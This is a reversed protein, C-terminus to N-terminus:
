KERQGHNDHRPCVGTVGKFDMRKLVFSISVLKDFLLRGFSLAIRLKKVFTNEMKIEGSGAQFVVGVKFERKYGRLKTTVGM